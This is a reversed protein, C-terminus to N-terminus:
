QEEQVISIEVHMQYLDDFNSTCLQGGCRHNSKFTYCINAEDGCDITAVVTTQVESM